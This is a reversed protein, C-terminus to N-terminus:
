FNYNVGMNGIFFNKDTQYKLFGTSLLLDISSSLRFYSKINFNVGWLQKSFYEYLQSYELLEHTTNNYVIHESIIHLSSYWSIQPGINFSLKFKPNEIPMFSLHLGFYKLQGSYRYNNNFQGMGKDCGAFMGDAILRNYELNIVMGQGGFEIDRFYGFGTNLSNKTQSFSAISAILLLLTFLTKKM